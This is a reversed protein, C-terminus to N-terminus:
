VLLISEDDNDDDDNNDDNSGDRRRRVGTGLLSTANEDNRLEDASCDFYEIDGEEGYSLPKRNVKSIAWYYFFEIHLLVHVMGAAYVGYHHRYSPEHYTRYVWNIIYMFRYFGILFVYNATLNEVIRYKKLLSLQPLITLAELYISFIWLLGQVNRFFLDDLYVGTVIHTLIALISCPMVICKMYPFTDQDQLDGIDYKRIYYIISLQFSIYVIKMGSNYLSYFTTLLDNYRALCVILYLMQTGLSIGQSNRASILRRLLIVKAFFRCMDGILRFINMAM